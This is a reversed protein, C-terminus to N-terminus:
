KALVDAIVTESTSWLSKALEPDKANDSLRDESIYGYPTLHKGAYETKKEWVVPMTSAFLPTMAGQLPTMSGDLMAVNAPGVFNISGPTKVGGPHVSIAVAAVGEADFRRQLEKTFLINALKSLGYRAINSKPDDTGGLDANFSEPTDFKFGAPVLFHTTSSMNVVRVGPYSEATKKLLPLLTLTFLFPGLHNTNFSVSIGQENKDLPRALLGANNVLIDLRSEENVFAQAVAKVQKLDNLDMVLPKLNASPITKTLETIASQAKELSRAGIYVKAGKLALQEVVNIGISSPAYAGTVIAVKGTLTPIADLDLEPSRIERTYEM